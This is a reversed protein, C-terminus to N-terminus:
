RSSTRANETNTSGYFGGKCSVLSENFSRQDMEFFSWKITPHKHVYLHSSKTTRCLLFIEFIEHQCESGQILSCFIVNYGNINDDRQSKKKHVQRFTSTWKLIYVGLNQKLEYPEFFKLEGCYRGGGRSRCTPLQGDHQRFNEMKFWKLGVM